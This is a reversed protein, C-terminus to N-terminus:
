HGVGTIVVDCEAAMEEAFPSAIGLYSKRWTRISAGPHLARLSDVIGRLVVDAFEKCNDLIGVRAGDLAPIRQALRRAAVDATGIPVCVPVGAIEVQSTAAAPEGHKPSM